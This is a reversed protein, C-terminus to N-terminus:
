ESKITKSFIKFINKKKLQLDTIARHSIWKSMSYILSCNRACLFVQLNHCVLDQTLQTYCGSGKNYTMLGWKKVSETFVSLIIYNTLCNEVSIMTVSAKSRRKLYRIYLQTHSSPITRSSSPLNCLNFYNKLIDFWKQNLM